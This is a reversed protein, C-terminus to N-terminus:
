GKRPKVVTIALLGLTTPVTPDVTIEVHTVLRGPFPNIWELTYLFVHRKILSGEADLLPVMRAGPFDRHPYDSWWDQINAKAATVGAVNGDSQDKGLSVLPVTGLPGKAGHVTYRAFPQRSRAYGCGHLLYIAEARSEIPILLRDPLEHANGKRNVSSHFVVAGMDSRRSGGLIDFPVGHIERRGPPLCPLPLDGLWGRRFRLPRNVFPRLNVPEFRPRESLSAKAALSYPRRVM